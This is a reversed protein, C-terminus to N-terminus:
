VGAKQIGRYGGSHCFQHENDMKKLINWLESDTKM